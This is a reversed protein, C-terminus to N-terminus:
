RADLSDRLLESWPWAEWRDCLGKRVPNALVYEIMRGVDDEKRAHRDWYSRSWGFESHGLCHARRSVESKFMTVFAPFDSEESAVSCVVHVHDPMVCYARLVIGFRAAREQLVTTVVPALDPVLACDKKAVITVFIPARSTAYVEEHWRHPHRRDPITPKIGGEQERAPRPLEADCLKRRCAGGYSGVMVM